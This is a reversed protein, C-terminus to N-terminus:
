FIYKLLHLAVKHYHQIFGNNRSDLRAHSNGQKVKQAHDREENSQKLMFKHFGELAVDDRDFHYAKESLISRM